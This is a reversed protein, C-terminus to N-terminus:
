TTDNHQKIVGFQFIDFSRYGTFIWAIGFGDPHGVAKTNLM